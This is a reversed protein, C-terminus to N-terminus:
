RGWRSAESYYAGPGEEAIQTRVRSRELMREAADRYYDVREEATWGASLFFGEGPRNKGADAVGDELGFQKPDLGMERLKQALTKPEGAYVEPRGTSTDFDITLTKDRRNIVQIAMGSSSGSPYFTLVQPDKPEFEIEDARFKSYRVREPLSRFTELEEVREDGSSRSRRSRREDELVTYRVTWGGEEPNFELTAERGTVIAMQRALLGASAIDRASTQLAMKERPGAMNPLVVAALIGLIVIVIMIELFTVGRQNRRMTM